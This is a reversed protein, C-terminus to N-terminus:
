YNYALKRRYKKIMMVTIAADVADMNADRRFQRIEQKTYYFTEVDSPSTRPRTWEATVLPLPHIEDIFKRQRRAPSSQQQLYIDKIRTCQMSM